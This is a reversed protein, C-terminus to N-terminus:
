DKSTDGHLQYPGEENLRLHKYDWNYLFAQGTDGDRVKRTRIVIKSVQRLVSPALLEVIAASDQEVSQSFALEDRGRAMQSSLLYHRNSRLSHLRLARTNDQVREWRKEGEGALLYYGDVVVLDANVMDAYAAIEDVTFLQAILMRDGFAIKAKELMAFFQDSRAQDAFRGSRIEGYGLKTLLASLRRAIQLVPMEVSVFLVRKRDALNQEPTRPAKKVSEAPTFLWPNGTIAAAGCMLMAWTKGVGTKAVVTTLEGPQLGRLTENLFPFPLQIGWDAETSAVRVQQAVVDLAPGLLMANQTSAGMVRGIDRHEAQLREWIGSVPLARDNFWATQATHLQTLRTLFADNRVEEYLARLTKDSTAARQAADGSLLCRDAFDGFQKSVARRDPLVHLARFRDLLFSLRSRFPEAFVDAGFGVRLLEELEPKATAGDVLRTMFARQDHDYDFPRVDTPELQTDLDLDDGVDAGLDSFDPDDTM